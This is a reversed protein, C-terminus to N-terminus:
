AAQRWLDDWWGNARVCRLAVVPEINEKAWWAGALKLRRQTVHRHASEIEGSGIILGRDRFDQYHVSDHFRHLYAHLQSAREGGQRTSDEAYTALEALVADIEGHSLQDMWTQVQETRPEQALGMEDATDCLHKRCHGKDLIHQDIELAGEIREKLGNGGDTVAYTFANEAGRHNAATALTKAFREIDGVQGIYTPNDADDPVALGLRVERYVCEKNFKPGGKPGTEGPIREVEVMPILAGDAQVMVLHPQEDTREALKAEIFAPARSAIHLV